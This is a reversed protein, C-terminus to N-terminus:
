NFLVGMPSSSIANDGVTTIKSWNFNYKYMGAETVPHLIGNMVFYVTPSSGKVLYHWDFGVGVGYGVAAGSIDPRFIGTWNNFIQDFVGGSSIPQLVGEADVLYVTDGTQGQIRMGALDTRQIGPQMIPDAFASTSLFLSFLATFIFKM